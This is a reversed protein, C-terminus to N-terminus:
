PRNSCNVFFFVFKPDTVPALPFFKQCGASYPDRFIQAVVGGGGVSDMRAFSQRGGGGGGFPHQGTRRHDYGRVLAVGVRVRISVRVRVWVRVM